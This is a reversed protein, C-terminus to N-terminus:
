EKGSGANRQTNRSDEAKREDKYHTVTSSVAGPKENDVIDDKESQMMFKQFRDLLAHVSKTSLRAPKKADVLYKLHVPQMERFCVLGAEMHHEACAPVLAFRYCETRDGSGDKPPFGKAIAEAFQVGDEHDDSFDSLPRIPALYLAPYVRKVGSFKDGECTRTM